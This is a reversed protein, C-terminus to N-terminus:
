SFLIKIVTLVAVAWYVVGQKCVSTDSTFEVKNGRTWIKIGCSVSLNQSSLM